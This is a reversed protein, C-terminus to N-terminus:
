FHPWTSACPARAGVVDVLQGGENLEPDLCFLLGVIEVMHAANARRCSEGRLRHM